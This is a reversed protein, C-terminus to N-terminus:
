KLEIAVELVSTQRIRTEPLTQSENERQEELGEASKKEQGNAVHDVDMDEALPVAVDAQDGASIDDVAGVSGTRLRVTYRDGRQQFWSALDLVKAIAKGTGKILIEEGAANAEEEGLGSKGQRRQRKGDNKLREVEEAIGLVEDEDHDGGRRKRGRPDNQKARTTAAQVLRKDARQLLKEVRKVASLFPTSASVYVVKPQASNTYPSPIAPRHLPRKTVRTGNPLKPLKKITPKEMRRSKSAKRAGAM